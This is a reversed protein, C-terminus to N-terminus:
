RVERPDGSAAANIFKGGAMKLLGKGISFRQDSPQYGKRRARSLLARCKARDCTGFGEVLGERQLDDLDLLAQCTDVQTQMNLKPIEVIDSM